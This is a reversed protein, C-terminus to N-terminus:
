SCASRKKGDVHQTWREDGAIYFETFLAGGENGQARYRAAVNATGGRAEIDSRIVRDLEKDTMQELPRMRLGRVKALRARLVQRM